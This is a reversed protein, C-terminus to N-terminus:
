KYTPNTNFWPYKRTHPDIMKLNKKLTMFLKKGNPHCMKMGIIVTLPTQTRQSTLSFDNTDQDYMSESDYDLQKNQITSTIGSLKIALYKQNHTELQPPIM